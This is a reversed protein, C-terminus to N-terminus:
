NLGGYSTLCNGRTLLLILVRQVYLCFYSLELLLQVRYFQGLHVHALSDALTLRRFGAVFVRKFSGGAAIYSQTSNQGVSASDCGIVLVDKAPLQIHM